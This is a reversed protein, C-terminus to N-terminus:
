EYSKVAALLAESHSFIDTLTALDHKVQQDDQRIELRKLTKSNFHLRCIPKRNNDDLLIACYSKADRMYVREPAVESAVIARVMNYGDIEEQTTVIEDEAKLPVEINDQGPQAIIPSSEEGSTTALALKLRQSVQEKIHQAMADRIIPTFEDLVQQTMRGDFFDQAIFKIFDRPPEKMLKSFSTMALNTYKLRNATSLITDVNFVPKAFKKLEEIDRENYDTLRFTFFPRTDLKNADDLDSYFRYEIGNTLIAFKAETCNFYRYLQSFQANALDTTRPKCEILISLVGENKIAYDVKEGKKLGVDATFEPLVETPNFVDYGLSQIFPMVMANKTAEENVIHDIQEQARSALAAIKQTIDM